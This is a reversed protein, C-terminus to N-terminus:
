SLTNVSTLSRDNVWFGITCGLLSDLLLVNYTHRIQEEWKSSYSPIHHLDVKSKSIFWLLSIVTYQLHTYKRANTWHLHYKRGMKCLTCTCAWRRKDVRTVDAGGCEGWCSLCSIAAVTSTREWIAVRGKERIYVAGGIDWIGFLEIVAVGTGKGRRGDASTM